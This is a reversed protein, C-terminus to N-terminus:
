LFNVQGPGLVVLFLTGKIFSNALHVQFSEIYYYIKSKFEKANIKYSLKQFPKIYLLVFIVVEVGQNM